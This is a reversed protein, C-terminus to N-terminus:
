KSPRFSIQLAPNLIGKHNRWRLLCNIRSNNLTMCSITHFYNKKRDKLLTYEGTLTLSEKSLTESSFQQGDWFVFKKQSQSSLLKSTLQGTDFNSHYQELYESISKAVLMDRQKKLCQTLTNEHTKMHQFMPHITYKTNGVYKKYHELSPITSSYEFCACVKELFHQHFFESYSMSNKFSTNSNNLPISLIQPSSSISRGNKFEFEPITWITNGLTDFYEVVFDYNYGRGAKKTINIRNYSLGNNHKKFQDDLFKEFANQLFKWKKGFALDCLYCHTDDINLINELICERKKNNADNNNRGLKRNFFLDIDVIDPFNQSEVIM